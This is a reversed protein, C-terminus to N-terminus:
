FDVHLRLGGVTVALLFGLGGRALYERHRELRDRPGRSRGAPEMPAGGTGPRSRDHRESRHLRVIRKTRREVRRPWVRHRRRGGRVREGAGYKVRGQRRHAEIDPRADLGQEFATLADQYDGMNAHNAFALSRLTLSASPRWELELNDGRARRVHWDLDIGNAVKPMLAEGLRLTWGPTILHVVAAYTYGRTDAAYDYADNNDLAWNTFQLHSDSGASNVDFFDAM